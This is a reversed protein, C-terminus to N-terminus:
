ILMKNNSSFYNSMCLKSKLKRTISTCPNFATCSTCDLIFVNYIVECIKVRSNNPWMFLECKIWLPQSNSETLFVFSTFSVRSTDSLLNFFFLFHFTEVYKGMNNMGTSSWEQQKERQIFMNEWKNLHVGAKFTALIKSWQSGRSAFQWTLLNINYKDWNLWKLWTLLLLLPILLHALVYIKM